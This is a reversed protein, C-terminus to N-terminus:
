TARSIAYWYAHDANRAERRAALLIQLSAAVRNLSLTPQVQNSSLEISPSDTPLIPSEAIV